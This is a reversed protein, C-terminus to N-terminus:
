LFLEYERCHWDVAATVCSSGNRSIKAGREQPKLYEEESSSQKFSCIYSPRKTPIVTLLVRIM